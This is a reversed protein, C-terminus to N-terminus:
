RRAPVAIMDLALARDKVGTGAVRAKSAAPPRKPDYYRPRLKNLQQSADDTSVYYTAKVLHNLDSGADKLIAALRDFTDAVQAEGNGSRSSVLGATYIFRNSQVRTVRSYIPSATMGPPTLFEVTDTQEGPASAILEIEIPLTSEWEVLVLPPPNDGFHANFERIVDAAASMPTLFAKCQVVHKDNLELWKLTARLSALTKRTADAPSDGKEAQGSVYVRRGPPLIAAGAVIRVATGTLKGPAVADMAVISDPAPLKGVVFTVAPRKEKPFSRAVTERVLGATDLSAVGVNLRVIQKADGDASRIAGLVKELVLEVQEKASRNKGDAAVMFQATHVLPVDGVVAARSGGTLEDESLYTVPDAAIATCATAIAILTAISRM